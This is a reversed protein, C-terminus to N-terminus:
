NEFPTGNLLENYRYEALSQWRGLSHDSYVRRTLKRVDNWFTSANHLNNLKEIKRYDREEIARENSM